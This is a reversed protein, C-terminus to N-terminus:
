SSRMTRSRCTDRDYNWFNEYRLRYEGTITLSKMMPLIVKTGTESQGVLATAPFSAAFAVAIPGHLDAASEGVPSQVRIYEAGMAPITGALLFTAVCVLPLKRGRIAM